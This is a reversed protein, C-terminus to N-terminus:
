VAALFSFHWSVDPGFLKGEGPCQVDKQLYLAHASSFKAEREIRHWVCSDQILTITGNQSLFVLHSTLLKLRLGAGMKMM